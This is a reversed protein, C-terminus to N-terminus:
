GRTATEDLPQACAAGSGGGVSRPLGLAEYLGLKGRRVDTSYDVELVVDPFDHEGIVM